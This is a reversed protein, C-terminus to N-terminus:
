VRELAVSLDDLLDDLDELGVSIRILNPSLGMRQRFEEPVSAHTMTIPHEILSEVGGLSEALTFIRVGALMRFVAEQGGGVRFSFTGGYGRMQQLALRHQPHSELGPHLVSEIKPHRSLWQAVALANRNHEEMRLALTKIGRLVLFCDQPGACTGLANQLFGIREALDPRNVIAAGGVVDSHGNIYKTTSHVVIDVGFQLPRQFYPSLFTNDCIALAGHRHAADATQKLDVLNMLPNTPSEIWVAAAGEALAAELGGSDRLDIYRARIGKSRFATEFLRYTGGYLDNHVLITDGSQFLMLLTTEAAMGTGFAFGAAGGELAALCEELVKRTPNGSRSYDFPGPQNVGRFAFTSTQYIPTTVAGQHDGSRHGAHISLTKFKM